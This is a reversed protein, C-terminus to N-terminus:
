GVCPFGTSIYIYVCIYIYLYLIIYVYVYLYLCLYLLSISMSEGKLCKINMAVKAEVVPPGTGCTALAWITNALEQAKFGEPKAEARLALGSM